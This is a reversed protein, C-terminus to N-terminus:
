LKVQSPPMIPGTMPPNPRVKSFLTLSRAAVARSAELYSIYMEAFDDQKIDKLIKLLRAAESINSIKGEHWTLNAINTLVDSLSRFPYQVDAKSAVGSKILAKLDDVFSGGSGVRDFLSLVVSASTERGWDNSSITVVENSTKLVSTKLRGIERSAFGGILDRSEVAYHSVPPKGLEYFERVEEPTSPLNMALILNRVRSPLKGLPKNLWSRVRWGVGFAQLAVAFSVKYKKVIEVFAGFSASAAKFEMLPIPSVDVGNFITRKAFEMASGKHSILSKHLGCEVGLSDLIQLYWSM